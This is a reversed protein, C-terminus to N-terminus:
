ETFVQIRHPREAKSPLPIFDALAHLMKQFLGPIGPFVCLKGGLRVVPQISARTLMGTSQVSLTSVVWLEPHVFLVEASQPFLAMRLTAAKQEPTQLTAWKRHMNMIKMRRITEEHHVLPTDFAKALSAYTIDKLSNTPSSLRLTSVCQGDHTPGIGGSTVVFDFKNSLRRAAEIRHTQLKLIACHLDTPNRVDGARRGSCGRNAEQAGSAMLRGSRPISRFPLRSACTLGTSSASSLSSMHIPTWPRGMSSRMEVLTEMNRDHVTSLLWNASRTTATLQWLHWQM